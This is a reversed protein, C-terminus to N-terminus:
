TCCEISDKEITENIWSQRWCKIIVVFFSGNFTLKNKFLTLEQTRSFIVIIFLSLPFSLSIMNDTEKYQLSLQKFILTYRTSISQINKQLFVNM